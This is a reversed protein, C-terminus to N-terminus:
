KYPNSQHLFLECFNYLAQQDQYELCNVYYMESYDSIILISNKGCELTHFCADSFM